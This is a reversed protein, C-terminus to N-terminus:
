ICLNYVNDWSLLENDDSLSFRVNGKENGKKKFNIFYKVANSMSLVYQM